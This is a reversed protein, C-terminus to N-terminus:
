IIRLNSPEVAAAWSRRGSINLLQCWVHSMSKLSPLRRDPVSGFLGVCSRDCCGLGVPVAAPNDELFDAGNWVGAQRWLQLAM